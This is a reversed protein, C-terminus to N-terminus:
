TKETQKNMLEDIDAGRTQSDVQGMTEAYINYKIGSRHEIELMTKLIFDM